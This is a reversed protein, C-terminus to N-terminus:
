REGPSQITRKRVSCVGPKAFPSFLYVSAMATDARPPTACCSGRALRPARSVCSRGGASRFVNLECGCRVDDQM